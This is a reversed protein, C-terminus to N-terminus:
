RSLLMNVLSLLSEMHKTESRLSVSRAWRRAKDSEKLWEYPQRLYEVRSRVADKDIDVRGPVHKYAPHNSAAVLPIGCSGLEVAHTETKASNYPHEAMCIAGYSLGELAQAMMPIPVSHREVLREPNWGRDIFRGVEADAGVHLFSMDFEELLPQILTDYLELDAEMRGGMWLRTGIMGGPRPNSNMGFPDYCNPAVYIPAKHGMSRVRQALYRTSVMVADVYPFWEDYNDPSASQLEDYDEHAWLDDDLDAVVFQGNAHAQDSWHQRWERVPRVIIIEPTVVTKNPTMFSLPGDDVGEATVMHTCAATQWGWKWNALAGPRVARYYEGGMLPHRSCLYAISPIEPDTLAVAPELELAVM